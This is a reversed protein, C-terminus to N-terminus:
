ITQPQSEMYFDIISKVNEKVIDHDPNFNFVRSFSTAYTQITDTIMHHNASVVRPVTEDYGEKEFLESIYYRWFYPIDRTLGRHHVGHPDNVKHEVTADVCTLTPDPSYGKCLKMKGELIGVPVELPYGFCYKNMDCPMTPSHTYGDFHRCLEIKPIVTPRFFNNPNAYPPWDLRPLFLTEFQGEFWLKKITTATFIQVSDQMNTPLVFFLNEIQQNHFVRGVLEPWHSIYIAGDEKGYIAKFRSILQNFYTTSNGYFIHDHNALFFILDDPEVHQEYWKKWQPQYECRTDNLVLRHNCLTKELWQFLDNKQITSYSAPDVVINLVIKKWPYLDKLSLMMYKFIDLSSSSALYGRNYSSIRQSTLKINVFLIM